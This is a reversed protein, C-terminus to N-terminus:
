LRISSAVQVPIIHVHVTLTLSSVSSTSFPWRSYLVRYSCRALLGDISFIHRRYIYQPRRHHLAIRTITLPVEDDGPAGADGRTGSSLRRLRPPAARPLEIYPMSKLVSRHPAATPTPDDVRRGRHPSGSPLGSPDGSNNAAGTRRLIDFAHCRM